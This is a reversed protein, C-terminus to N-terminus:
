DLVRREEIPDYERQCYCEYIGKPLIITDHEEHTLSWEKRVEVNGLFYDNNLSPEETSKYFIGNNLRHNHGTNGSLVINTADKNVKDKMRGEILILDWHRYTIM